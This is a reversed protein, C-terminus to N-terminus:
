ELALISKGRNPPCILQTKIQEKKRDKNTLSFDTSPARWTFIRRKTLFHSVLIGWFRRDRGSGYSPVGSIHGCVRNM